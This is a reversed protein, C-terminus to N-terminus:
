ILLALMALKIEEGAGEQRSIGTDAWGDPRCRVRQALAFVVM